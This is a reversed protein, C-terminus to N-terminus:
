AFSQRYRRYSRLTVEVDPDLKALLRLESGNEPSGAVGFPSDRRALLRSAQMLCAQKVAPPVALWGFTGTVLVSETAGAVAQSLFLKTYPEGDALANRPSLHWTAVPTSYLGDGAIDAAVASVSQLDDVDLAFLGNGSAVPTYARSGVATGFQRRCARDISRSAASLAMDMVVADDTDEVRTYAALEESTAYDPAWAM